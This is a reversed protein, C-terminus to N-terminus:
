PAHVKVKVKAEVRTLLPKGNRLELTAIEQSNSNLRQPGIQITEKVDALVTAKKGQIHIRQNERKYTYASSSGWYDYLAKAYEDKTYSFKQTQQGMESVGTVRADDALMRIMGDVDRKAIADDVQALTAKVQAETISEAHAGAVFCLASTAMCAVAFLKM